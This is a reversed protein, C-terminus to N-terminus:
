LTTSRDGHDPRYALAATSRGMSWRLRPNMTLGDPGHAPGNLTRTTNRTCTFVEANARYAPATQFLTLMDGMLM